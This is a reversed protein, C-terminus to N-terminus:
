NRPPEFLEIPNGSPDELLIQRGGNGAVIENRFRHGAAKLREVVSTLDDVEIQIRNWGGPTPVRGDPMSQGAGGAGPRNLLLHLDSRSLAAFGPAPHMEVKFGLAGTYFSVAADVDDVIYRVRVVMQDEGGSAFGRGEAVGKAL